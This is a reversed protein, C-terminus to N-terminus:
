DTPLQVRMFGPVSPVVNSQQATETGQNVESPLPQTSPYTRFIISVLGDPSVAAESVLETGASQVPLRAMYWSRGEDRTWALYDVTAINNTAMAALGNEILDKFEDSALEQITQGTEVYYFEMRDAVRRYDVYDGTARDIFPVESTSEQIELEVEDLYIVPEPNAVMDVLLVVFQDNVGVLHPLVDEGDQGFPMPRVIAEDEGDQAFCLGYPGEGAIIEVEGGLGSRREFRDYIERATLDGLGFAEAPPRDFVNNFTTWNLGDETYASVVLNGSLAEKLLVFGESYRFLWGGGLDVERVDFDLDVEELTAKVPWKVTNALTIPCSDFSIEGPTESAATAAATPQSSPSASPEAASVTPTGAPVVASAQSITTQETQFNCALVSVLLSAFALTTGLGIRRM